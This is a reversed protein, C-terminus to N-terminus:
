TNSTELLKLSKIEALVNITWRLTYMKAMILKEEILQGKYTFTYPHYGFTKYLEIMDEMSINDFFPLQKIYLGREYCDKMFDEKDEETATKMFKDIVLLTNDPDVIEFYKRIHEIKEDNTKMEKTQRLCTDALFNLEDEYLQAVNERGVVGLPNLVQEAHEGYENVPMEEDPLIMSVCGKNGYRGTLKSGIVVPNRSLTRFRIVINDFSSGDYRFLTKPDILEKYRTYYYKVDESCTYKPDTMYKELFNVVSTYYKKTSEIYRVIQDYYPYKKLYDLDENCFIDIDTVISHKYTYFLTDTDYNVKKINKLNFDFLVSEYNLRRRSCCVRNKGVEEGIDPFPKYVNDDGYLNVLIDNKNVTVDFEDPSFASLKEAASKSLVIADEYTMNDFALYLTRLNVGYCFHHDEDYTTSEKLYEGKSIIDGAKKTVLTDKYKYGYRETIRESPRVFEIEINKDKDILIYCANLSNKAIKKLVKWKRDSKKYAVSYKGVQDEFSTFVNPFEPKELVLSQPLHNTFMNIRINDCNNVNPILLEEALFKHTGHYKESNEQIQKINVM